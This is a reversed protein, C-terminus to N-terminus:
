GGVLPRSIIIEEADPNFSKVLETGNPTKEFAAHGLGILGDFVKKAIAATEENDWQTEDDGNGSLLRMKGM